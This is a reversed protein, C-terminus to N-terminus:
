VSGAVIFANATVGVAIMDKGDISRVQAKLVSPV